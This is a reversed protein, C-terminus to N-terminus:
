NSKNKYYEDRQKFYYNRMTKKLKPPLQKMYKFLVEVGDNWWYRVSDRIEDYKDWFEDYSEYDGREELEYPEEVGHDKLFESSWKDWEEQKQKAIKEVNIQQERDSEIKSFNFPNNNNFNSGSRFVPYYPGKITYGPSKGLGWDFIDRKRISWTLRIKTGDKFFIRFLIDNSGETHREYSKEHRTCYNTGMSYSLCSEYSMPVLVLINGDNYLVETDGARKSGIETIISERLVKKIINKM